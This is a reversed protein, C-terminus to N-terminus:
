GRLKTPLSLTCADEAPHCDPSPSVSIKQFPKAAIRQSIVEDIKTTPLPLSM